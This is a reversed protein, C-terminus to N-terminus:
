RDLSRSLSRSPVGQSAGRQQAHPSLSGVPVDGWLVPLGVRGRAAKVRTGPSGEVGGRDAPSPSCTDVSSVSVPSRPDARPVPRSCTKFGGQESPSHFAPSVPSLLPPCVPVPSRPQPRFRLLGPGHACTPGTVCTVLAGQPVRGKQRMVKQACNHTVASARAARPLSTSRPAGPQKGTKKGTTDHFGRRLGVDGTEACGWTEAGAASVATLCPVREASAM